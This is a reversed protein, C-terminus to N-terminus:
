VYMLTRFLYPVASGFMDTSAPRPLVFGRCSRILGRTPDAVFECVATALLEAQEVTWSRDTPDRRLLVESLGAPTKTLMLAESLLLRERVVVYGARHVLDTTTELDIVCRARPRSLERSSPETDSTVTAAPSPHLTDTQVFWSRRLM